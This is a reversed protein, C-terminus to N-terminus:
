SWLSRRLEPPRLLAELVGGAIALSKESVLRAYDPNMRPDLDGVKMGRHVRLGEHLLGRLVGDFPAFLPQQDITAIIEGRQVQAGIEVQAVMEGDGPSRLVRDVQHSGVAGPTGTDAQPEGQWIVRGLFHGRNTEIVAHCNKGAEFGPGLGIVMPAAEMGLDPPRKTMRADVIARVEFLAEGRVQCDPDVIVPIQGKALALLAGQASEVRQSVVGEVTAEGHYVAEAFAVLRRVVLPQPLETVVVKLGVNHLRLAVGSALDGGGRILVVPTKDMPKQQLFGLVIL